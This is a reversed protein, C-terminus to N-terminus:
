EYERTLLLLHDTLKNKPNNIGYLIFIHCLFKYDEIFCQVCYVGKILM